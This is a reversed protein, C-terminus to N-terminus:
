GSRRTWGPSSGESGHSGEGGCVFGDPAPVKRTIDITTVWDPDEALLDALDIQEVANLRGDVVDVAYSRGDAFYVGDEIPLHGEQWLTVIETM